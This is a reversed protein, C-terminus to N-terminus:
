RGDHVSEGMRRPAERTPQPSGDVALRRLEQRVGLRMALVELCVKGIARGLNDDVTTATLEAGALAAAVFSLKAERSEMEFRLLAAEVRTDRAEESEEEVAEM